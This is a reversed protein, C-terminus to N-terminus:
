RPTLTLPSSLSKQQRVLSPLPVLSKNLCFGLTPLLVRLSGISGPQSPQLPFFIKWIPWQSASHGLAPSTVERLELQKVQSIPIVILKGESFIVQFSVHLHSLM